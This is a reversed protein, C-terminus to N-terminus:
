PHIENLWANLNKKLCKAIRYSVFVSPSRLRGGELSRISEVSVNAKRALDEQSLNLEIRRKKIKDALLSSLRKIEKTDARRTM